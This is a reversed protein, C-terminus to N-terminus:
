RESEAFPPPLCYVTQLPCYPNPTVASVRWPPAVLILFIVFIVFFVL